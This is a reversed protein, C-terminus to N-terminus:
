VRARGNADVDARGWSRRAAPPVGHAMVRAPELRHGPADPVPAPDAPEAAAAAV